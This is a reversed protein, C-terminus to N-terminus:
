VEEEERSVEVCDFAYELDETTPIDRPEEFRLVVTLEIAM